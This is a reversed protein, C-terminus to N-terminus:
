RCSVGVKRERSFVGMFSGPSIHWELSSCLTGPISGLRSLGIGINREGSYCRANARGAWCPGLYMVWHCWDTGWKKIWYPETIRDKGRVKHGTWLNTCPHWRSRDLRHFMLVHGGARKTKEHACQTTVTRVSPLDNHSEVEEM